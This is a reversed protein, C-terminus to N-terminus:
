VIEIKGKSILRLGFFIGSLAIGYEAPHNQIFSQVVPVFAIVANILAIWNTKSKWSKKAEM